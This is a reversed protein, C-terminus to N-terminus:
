HLNNEHFDTLHQQLQNLFQDFVFYEFRISDGLGTRRYDIVSHCSHVPRCSIAPGDPFFHFYSFRILADDAHYQIRGVMWNQFKWMQKNGFKWVLVKFGEKEM